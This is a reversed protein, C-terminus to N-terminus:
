LMSNIGLLVVVSLVITGFWLWFRVFLDDARDGIRENMEEEEIEWTKSIWRRYVRWRFRMIWAFYFLIWPWLLVNELVFQITAKTDFDLHGVAQTPGQGQTHVRHMPIAKYSALGIIVGFVLYDNVWAPVVFPLWGFFLDFIPETVERYSNVLTEIFGKWKLINEFWNEVMSSLSIAGGISGLVNWLTILPNQKTAMRSDPM